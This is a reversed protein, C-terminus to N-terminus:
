GRWDSSFMLTKGSCARGSRPVHMCPWRLRCSAFLVVRVGFAVERFALWDFCFACLLAFLFAFAASCVASFVPM